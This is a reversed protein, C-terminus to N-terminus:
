DKRFWMEYPDGSVYVKDKIQEDEHTYVTHEQDECPTREPHHHVVTSEPARKDVMRDRAQRHVVEDDTVGPVLYSHHRIRMM